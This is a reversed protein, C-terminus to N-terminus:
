NLQGHLLTKVENLFLFLSTEMHVTYLHLKVKKKYIVYKRFVVYCNVFVVNLFLSVKVAGDKPEGPRLSLLSCSFGGGGQPCQM